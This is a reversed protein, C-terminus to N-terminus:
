INTIKLFTEPSIEIGQNKLFHLANQKGVMIEYLKNGYMGSSGRVLGVGGEPLEDLSNYIKFNMAKVDGFSENKIFNVVVEDRDKPIIKESISTKINGFCDIFLIRSLELHSKYDSLKKIEHNSSILPKLESDHVDFNHKKYLAVLRPLWELSRFQTHTLYERIQENYSFKDLILDPTKKRDLVYVSTEFGADAILGLLSENFSSIVFTNNIVFVCFPDGNKGQTNKSRPAANILLVHQVDNQDHLTGYVSCTLQDIAHLASMHEVSHGALEGFVPIPIIKNTVDLDALAKEVRTVAHVDACDTIFAVSKLKDKM